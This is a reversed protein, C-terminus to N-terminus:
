CFLQITKFWYYSFRVLIHVFQKTNCVNYLGGNHLLDRGTAEHICICIQILCKLQIATSSRQLTVVRPRHDSSGKLTIHEKWKLIRAMNMGFQLVKCTIKKQLLCCTDITICEILHIFSKVNVSQQVFFKRSLFM